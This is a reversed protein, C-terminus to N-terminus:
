LPKRMLRRLMQATLPARTQAMKQRVAAGGRVARDTILYRVGAEVEFLVGELVEEMVWRLGRAGTGRVLAVRAIQQVAADIFVLDAGHFRVLRMFQKTRVGDHPM